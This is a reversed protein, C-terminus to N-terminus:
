GDAPLVHGARAQEMLHERAPPLNKLFSCGFRSLQDTEEATKIASDRDYGGTNFQEIVYSFMPVPIEKGMYVGRYCSDQHCNFPALRIGRKKPGIAAVVSDPVELAFHARNKVSGGYEDTCKNSVDQLFQDILYGNAAHIDVGDFGAGHVANRAPTGYWEIYQKIGKKDRDNPSTSLPIPSPAVYAYDPNEQKLWAPRAACGLAWLKINWAPDLEATLAKSLGEVTFKTASYHAMEPLGHVGEISSMAEKTVYNTGWCNTEFLARADADSIAEVDKPQTVDRMLTLLCDSPYKSTLAALMTPRRATAVVIDGHELAVETLIHGFGSSADTVATRAAKVGSDQHGAYGRAALDKTDDAWAVRAIDFHSCM